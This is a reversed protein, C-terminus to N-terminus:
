EITKNTWQKTQENSQKNMVKNTLWLKIENMANMKNYALLADIDTIEPNM